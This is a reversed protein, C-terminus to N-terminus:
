PRLLREVGDRWTARLADTSMATAEYLGVLGLGAHLSWYGLTLEMASQDARVQGRAMGHGILNAIHGNAAFSRDRLEAHLRPRNLAYLTIELYVREAQAQTPTLPLWHEGIEVLEAVCDWGDHREVPAPTGEVDIPSGDWTSLAVARLLNDRTGFAHTFPRTSTDAAAALRRFTCAEIGERAILDRAVGVLRARRQDANERTAAM